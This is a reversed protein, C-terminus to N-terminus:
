VPLAPEAHVVRVIGRGYAADFAAQAKKVSSDVGVQLYGTQTPGTEVIDVGRAKWAKWDISRQLRTVAHLTRPADDHIVYTGPHRARLEALISPPAHHLYVITRNAADDVVVGTFVHAQGAVKEAYNAAADLFPQNAPTSYEAAYRMQPSIDGGVRTGVVKEVPWRVTVVWSSSHGRGWRERFRVDALPYRGRESPYTVSTQCTGRLAERMFGRSTPIECTKRGPRSPFILFLAYNAGRAARIEAAKSDQPRHLVGAGSPIPRTGGGCASLGLAALLM